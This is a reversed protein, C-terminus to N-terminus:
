ACSRYVKSVIEEVFAPIDEKFPIVGHNKTSGILSAYTLFGDSSFSISFVSRKGADWEFCIEGDPDIYIDPKATFNTSLNIFKEAYEMSAPIARNAGEGDWNNVGAAAVAGYLENILLKKVQTEYSYSQPTVALLRQITKAEDSQTTDITFVWASEQACNAIINM